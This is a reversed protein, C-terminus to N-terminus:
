CTRESGAPFAHGVRSDDRLPIQVPPAACPREGLLPPEYAASFVLSGEGREGPWFWVRPLSQACPESDYVGPHASAGAPVAWALGTATVLGVLVAATRRRRSPSATM